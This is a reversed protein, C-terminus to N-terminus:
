KLLEPNEYINGIVEGSENWDALVLGHPSLWYTGAYFEVRNVEAPPENIDVIDGEYIETGNKDKLGTYQMVQYGEFLEPHGVMDAMNSLIFHQNYSMKNPISGWARYKHERM